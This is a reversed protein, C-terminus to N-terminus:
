TVKQSPLLMLITNIACHRTVPHITHRDRRGSRGATAQEQVMYSWHSLLIVANCLRHKFAIHDRRQIQAFTNGVVWVFRLVIVQVKQTVNSKEVNASHCAFILSVNQLYKSLYPSVLQSKLTLPWRQMENESVLQWWLHYSSRLTHRSFVIKYAWADWDCRM